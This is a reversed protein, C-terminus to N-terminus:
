NRLPAGSGGACGRSGSGSRCGNSRGRCSRARGSGPAVPGFAARISCSRSRGRRVPAGVDHGDVSEAVTEVASAVGPAPFWASRVLKIRGLRDLDTTLGASPREDHRPRRQYLARRRDDGRCSHGPSPDHRSRNSQPWGGRVGRQRAAHPEPEPQARGGCRQPCEVLAATLHRGFGGM